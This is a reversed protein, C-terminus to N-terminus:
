APSIAATCALGAAGALNKLIKPVAGHRKRVGPASVSLVSLGGVSQRCDQSSKLYLLRDAHSLRLAARGVALVRAAVGVLALRASGGGRSGTVLTRREASIVDPAQEPWGLQQPRPIVESGATDAGVIQAGDLVGGDALDHTHLPFGPQARGRVPFQAALRPVHIEDVLQAADLLHLIVRDPHGEVVLLFGVLPRRRRRM